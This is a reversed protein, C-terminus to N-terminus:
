HHAAGGGVNEHQVFREPNLRDEFPKGIELGNFDGLGIDIRGGMRGSHDDPADRHGFGLREAEQLGAGASNQSFGGADGDDEGTQSGDREASAPHLVAYEAIGGAGVAIGAAFQGRALLLHEFQDFLAELILLDGVIETDARPGDFDMELMNKFFGADAAAVAEGEASQLVAAQDGNWGSVVLQDSGITAARFRYCSDVSGRGYPAIM